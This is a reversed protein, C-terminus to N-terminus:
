PKPFGQKVVLIFLKHRHPILIPGRIKSIEVQYGEIYKSKGNTLWKVWFELDDMSFVENKTPVDTITDM